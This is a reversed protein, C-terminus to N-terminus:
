DYHKEHEEISEIQEKLIRKMTETDYVRKGEDTLYFLVPIQIHYQMQSSTASPVTQFRIGDLNDSWSRPELGEKAPKLDRYGNRFMKIDGHENGNNSGEWGSYGVAMCSEDATTTSATAHNEFYGMFDGGEDFGYVAGPDGRNGWHQYLKVNCTSKCDGAGFGKRSCPVVRKETIVVM